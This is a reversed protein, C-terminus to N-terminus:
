EQSADTRGPTFPVRIDHGAAGPPRSSPPPGASCSRPRGALDTERRCPPVDRIGELTRLVTHWSTPTTSRGAANRTSASARATRAAAGTARQPVDLGVGVRDRRAPGGDSRLRPDRSKLEAVDAAVVLEHDVAPVRDQWLLEERPVLPGLYRQIPGMDLHTLKFWVRAFADALEDPHDLFRRAIPAYVPDFRLALDTTLFTPAHTTSPDHADPVTGAGGGDRPVWQWLGAPSLAM